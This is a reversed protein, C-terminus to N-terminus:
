FLVQMHVNVTISNSTVTMTGGAGLMVETHHPVLGVTM